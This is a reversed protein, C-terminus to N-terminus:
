LLERYDTPSVGVYKKFQKYFYGTEWYGVERAIDQVKRSNDRLLQKAKTIRYKNIYETFNENTEKHFLQGLYVPHINYQQGLGKLSMVDAYSEHIHQLIQNIIPSRVEWGLHDITAAATQKVIDILQEITEAAAIGALAGRYPEPEDHRKFEKLETKFRVIMETVVSRVFEPTIGESALIQKFDADILASLAAQNKAFLLKAYAEWNIPFIPNQDHGAPLQEYDIMDQEPYVLMYDQARLAKAYSEHANEASPTAQGIAIRITRDPWQAIWQQLTRVASRKGEERDCMSFVIVIDGDNNRLPVADVGHLKLQRATAYVNEALRQEMRPTVVIAAMFYPASIDIQLLSAREELERMSIQNTLWRYLIADKIITIDQAQRVPAASDENLKDVTNRLTAILEQVNVPKLLYNEIGMTMGQKLYDFENYGSLIVIKMHRSENRIERILELGGMVPMSIDTMLIDVPLKLMAERAQKGNSAYGVIELGLSSWDILDYLGEIIFPEDDVLFVRYM